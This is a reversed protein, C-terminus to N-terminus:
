NDSGNGEATEPLRENEYGCNACQYVYDPAAAYSSFMWTFFATLFNAIGPKAIYSFNNSGCNPCTAAQLYEKDFQKLLQRAAAEDEKRVVLKIGGIANSLIPDITVTFEDLLYCAIGEWQLKTLIINATFYNDYARIKALAM